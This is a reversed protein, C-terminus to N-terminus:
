ALRSTIPYLDPVPCSFLVFLLMILGSLYERILIIAFITLFAKGIFAQEEHKSFYGSLTSM